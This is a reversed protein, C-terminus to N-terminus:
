SGKVLSLAKLDNNAPWKLINHLIDLEFQLTWPRRWDLHSASGPGRSTPIAKTMRSAVFSSLFLEELEAMLHRVFIIRFSGVSLLTQMKLHIYLCIEFMKFWSQWRGGWTIYLWAAIITSKNMDMGKELSHSRVLAWITFLFPGRLAM